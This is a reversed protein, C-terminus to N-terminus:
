YVEVFASVCGRKNKNEKEPPPEQMSSCEQHWPVEGNGSFYALKEEKAECFLRSQTYHLPQVQNILYHDM